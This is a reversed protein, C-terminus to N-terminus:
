AATALADDVLGFVAAHVKSASAPLGVPVFDGAPVEALDWNVGNAKAMWQDAAAEWGITAAAATLEAIHARATESRPGSAPLWELFHTDADVALAGVFDLALGSVPEPGGHIAFLRM